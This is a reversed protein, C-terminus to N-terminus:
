EADESSEPYVYIGNVGVVQACVYGQATLLAEVEHPNNREVIFVRPKYQEFPFGEIVDPEIGEVDISVLDLTPLRHQALIDRLSRVRVKIEHYGTFPAGSQPIEHAARQRMADTLRLGGYAGVDTAHFPAPQLHTVSDVACQLNIDEHRADTLRAYWHPHPEINIGRWGRQYFHYTNSLHVGDHAGVDLYHGIYGQSFFQAAIKDEEAQAYYAM